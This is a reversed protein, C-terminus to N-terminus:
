YTRVLRVGVDEGKYTSYYVVHGLRDASRYFFDNQPGYWPIVYAGGRCFKDGSTSGTPNTQEESTYTGYGDWIWEWVNGSMDYIGIENPSKTGVEHYIYNANNYFWAISNLDNSGSYKYSNSHKGGRAAYEWEAETPLRYGNAQWNCIVADWTSNQSTPVSGWNSPNTSNNIMYVPSLGEVLSRKNCYVLIDYWSIEVMPPNRDITGGNISDQMTYIWENYTVEYKGIYFSSLTVNHVPRCDAPLDGVEDGMQFTGGEVFVFGEPVTVTQQMEVAIMYANGVPHNDPIAYDIEKSQYSNINYKIKFKTEGGFVKPILFDFTGNANTVSHAIQDGGVSYVGVEVGPLSVCASQTETSVTGRVSYSSLNQYYSYTVKSYTNAADEGFWYLNAAAIGVNGVQFAINLKGLVKNLAKATVEKQFEAWILDRIVQPNNAIYQASFKGFDYLFDDFKKQAMLSKLNGVVQESSFLQQLFDKFFYKWANSNNWPRGRLENKLSTTGAAIEFMPMIYDYMISLATPTLYRYFDEETMTGYNPGLAGVGYSNVQITKTQEPINVKNLNPSTESPLPASFNFIDIWDISPSVIIETHEPSLIMNQNIDKSFDTFAMVFRKGINEIKYEIYNANPQNVHNVEILSLRPSHVGKSKAKQGSILNNIVDSYVQDAKQSIASSADDLDLSGENYATQILTVLESFNASARIINHINPYSDANSSVIMPNMFVIAEATTEANIIIGSKQNKQPNIAQLVTKGNKDVVSLLQSCNVTQNITFSGGSNIGTEGSGAVVTLDATNYNSSVTVSGSVQIQPLTPTEPVVPETAADDQCGTFIVAALVLLLWLSIKKM